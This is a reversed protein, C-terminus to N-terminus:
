LKTEGIQKVHKPPFSVVTRKSKSQKEQLDRCIADLDYNFKRAYKDRAKRVEEVIPDKYM